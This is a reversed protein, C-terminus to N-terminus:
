VSKFTYLGLSLVSVLAISWIVNGLLAWLYLKRVSSVVTLGIAMGLAPGFIGPLLLGLGIIGHNELYRLMKKESGATLSKGRKSLILQKVKKGLVYVVTTSFSSGLIIILCIWFPKINFALGYPISIWLGFCGICFLLLYNIPNATM